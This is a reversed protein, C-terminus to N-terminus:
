RSRHGQHRMKTEEAEQQATMRIQTALKEGQTVAAAITEPAPTPPSPERTNRSRRRPKVRVEADAIDKRIRGRPGKLRQAGIELRDSLPHDAHDRLHRHDLDRHRGGAVM